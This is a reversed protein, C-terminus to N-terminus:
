RPPVKLLYPIGDNVGQKESWVKPSFGKPLGSQLQATTLGTIGADNAINGAGDGLNTIGSTDTDWYCNAISRVSSNDFGILGGDFNGGTPAGTSYSSSLTEGSAPQFFGILGGSYGALGATANGIAYTNTVSGLDLGILGGVKSEQAGTAAGTSFSQAISGDNEGAFGGTNTGQGGSVSGTAYSATIRDGADNMGILGGVSSSDGGSVNGTAFSSNISGDVPNEGVLGGVNALAGSDSVEGSAFSNAISAGNYGVLGGATASDGSGGDGTITGTAYSHKIPGQNFGVLGGASGNAGTAGVAGTAHSDQITGVNWGVLGGPSSPQGNGTVPGSAESKEITGFNSGALGGNFVVGNANGTNNTVAASSRCNSMTGAMIGILGGASFSTNATLTGSVADGRFTGDGEGALAGIQATSQGVINANTLQLNEVLGSANVNAFLGLVGTATGGKISLNALANGLGELQGMFTTSIPADSYTGDRSADYNVALAFSGAPNAAILAALRHITNVLKYPKGNIALKSTVHHFEVRGKGDFSLQGGSGGDNTLLSVSTAGQATVKAIVHISRFADLTLSNVTGWSVAAMVIIDNAQVGSGTTVVKVNDTALLSQLDNTNLVADSATPTCVGGFCTMNQTEGSSITVSAQAGGGSVLAAALIVLTPFTRRLLRERVTELITPTM